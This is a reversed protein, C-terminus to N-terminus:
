VRRCFQIHKQAFPQPTEEWLSRQFLVKNRKFPLRNPQWFLQGLRISTKKAVVAVLNELASRLATPAADKYCRLGFLIGLGTLPPM